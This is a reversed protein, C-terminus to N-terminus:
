PPRDLVGDTPGGDAVAGAGRITVNVTNWSFVLPQHMRSYCRPDSVPFCDGGNGYQPWVERPDVIPWDAGAHGLVTAGAELLVEADSSINFPGTLYWGREPFVM